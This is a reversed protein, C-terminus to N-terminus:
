VHNRHSLLHFEGNRKAKIRRNSLVEEISSIVDLPNFPKKLYLEVGYLNMMMRDQQTILYYSMVIIPIDAAKPTSKLRKVLQFRYVGKMETNLLIVDPKRTLVIQLATTKDNVVIISYGCLNLIKKLEVLFDKDEDILMVKDILM